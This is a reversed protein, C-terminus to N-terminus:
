SSSSSSSSAAKGLIAGLGLLGFVAMGFMTMQETAASLEDLGQMYNTIVTDKTDAGDHYSFFATEMIETTDPFNENKYIGAVLYDNGEFTEKSIGAIVLTNEHEYGHCSASVLYDGVIPNDCRPFYSLDGYYSHGQFEATTLGDTAPDTSTWVTTAEPSFCLSNSGVVEGDGMYHPYNDDGTRFDEDTANSYFQGEIPDIVLMPGDARSFVQAMAAAGPITPSFLTAFNFHISATSSGNNGYQVMQHGDLAPMTSQSGHDSPDASPFTLGADVDWVWDTVTQEYCESRSEYDSKTEADWSDMDSIKIHRKNDSPAEKKKPPQPKGQLDFISKALASDYASRWSESTEGGRYNVDGPCVLEEYSDFKAAFREYVLNHCQMTEPLVAANMDNDTLNGILKFDSNWYYCGDAVADASTATEWNLAPCNDDDQIWQALAKNANVAAQLNENFSYLGYAIALCVVGGIKNSM